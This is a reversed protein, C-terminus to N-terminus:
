YDCLEETHFIIASAQNRKKYIRFGGAQRYDVPKATSRRNRSSSHEIKSDDMEPSVLEGRPNNSTHFHKMESVHRKGKVKNSPVCLIEFTVENIKKGLLFPGIWRKALKKMVADAKNSLIHNKIM